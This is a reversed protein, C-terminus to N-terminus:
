HYSSILGNVAYNRAPWNPKTYSVTVTVAILNPNVGGGQAAPLNVQNFAITRTFNSLSFNEDDATGLVGDPGPLIMCEVGANPCTTGAPTKCNSTDGQVGVIGYLPGSCLLPQAGALFIGGNAVNQIASFPIQQSNRATYISELADLAKQRAILDEQASETATIAIAFSALVACLGVTMVVMAIMVEILSFGQEGNRKRNKKKLQMM